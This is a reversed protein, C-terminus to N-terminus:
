INKVNTFTSNTDCQTVHPGVVEGVPVGVVVMGVLLEFNVM